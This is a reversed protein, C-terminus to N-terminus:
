AAPKQKLRRRSFSPVTAEAAPASATPATGSVAQAQPNSGRIGKLVGQGPELGFVQEIHGATYPQQSTTMYGEYHKLPEAMQNRIAEPNKHGAQIARTVRSETAERAGQLGAKAPAQLMKRHLQGGEVISQMVGKQVPSMASTVQRSTLGNPLETLLKKAGGVGQGARQALYAKIASPSLAVKELEDRFAQLTYFDM